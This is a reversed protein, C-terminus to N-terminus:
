KNVKELKWIWTVDNINKARGQILEDSVIKGNYTAHKDNFNLIIKDGNKEWTDDNYTTDTEVAQTHRFKGNDGFTIEFSWDTHTDDTYKWTSNKLELQAQSEEIKPLIPQTPAAEEVVKKKCSAAVFVILVSFLIIRKM